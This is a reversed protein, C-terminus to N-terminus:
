SPTFASEVLGVIQCAMDTQRYGGCEAPNATRRRLGIQRGASAV